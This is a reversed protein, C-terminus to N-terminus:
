CEYSRRTEWESVKLERTLSAPLTSIVTSMKSSSYISVWINLNPNKLAITHTSRVVDYDIVSKVELSLSM